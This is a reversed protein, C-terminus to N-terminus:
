RLNVEVIQKLVVTILFWGGFTIFCWFNFKEVITKSRATQSVLALVVSVVLAVAGYFSLGGVFLGLAFQFGEHQGQARILCGVLLSSLALWGWNLTTPTNVANHENTM